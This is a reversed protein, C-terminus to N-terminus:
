FMPLELAGGVRDFLGAGGGFRVADVSILSGVDASDDALAVEATGDFYFRGLLVWTGGHRTQDVRFHSEGGTHTVVYHADRARDAGQEYAVYVNHYGADPLEATWEVRGTEAPSTAVTFTGGSAFPQVADSTIPLTVAGWGPGAPAAELSGFSAADDDVITLSATLDPERVPVVHAGMGVLYALLFQDIAEASVLDEVIDNTNPRQTRWAGADWTWGHGPSVYVTKGSLAGEALLGTPGLRVRRVPPTLKPGPREGRRQPVPPAQEAIAPTELGCDHPDRALLAGLVWWFV